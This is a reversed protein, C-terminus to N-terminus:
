KKMNARACDTKAYKDENHVEKTLTDQIHQPVTFRSTELLKQILNVEKMVIQPQM